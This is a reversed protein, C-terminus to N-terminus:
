WTTKVCCSNVCSLLVVVSSPWDCYAVQTVYVICKILNKLRPIKETPCKKALRNFLKAFPLCSGGDTYFQGIFVIYLFIIRALFVNFIFINGMFYPFFGFVCLQFFLKSFMWASLILTLTFYCLYKGVLLVNIYKGIAKIPKVKSFFDFLCISLLVLVTSSEDYHVCLVVSIGPHLICFYFFFRWGCIIM